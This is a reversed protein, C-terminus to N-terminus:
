SFSRTQLLNVWYFSVMGYTLLLSVASLVITSASLMAEITQKIKIKKPPPPLCIKNVRTFILSFDEVYSRCICKHLMEDGPQRHRPLTAQQQIGAAVAVVAGSPYSYVCCKHCKLLLQWIVNAYQHWLYISCSSCVLLLRTLLCFLGLKDMPIWWPWLSPQRNLCHCSKTSPIKNCPVTIEGAKDM